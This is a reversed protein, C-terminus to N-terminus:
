TLVHNSLFFVLGEDVLLFRSSGGPIDMRKLVGEEPVKSPLLYEEVRQDTQLAEDSEEWLEQHTEEAM